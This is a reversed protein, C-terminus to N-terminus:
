PGEGLAKILVPMRRGVARFGFGQYLRQSAENQRQTNLSIVRAGAEAAFDLADALLLRGLGLGQYGPNIGLRAIHAHDGTLRTCAYGALIGQYDLVVLRSSTLLLHVLESHSFQWPWAFALHDLLTLADLEDLGPLRLTVMPNPHEGALPRAPAYREYHIIYDLLAFQQQALPASPWSEIGLHMLHQVQDQRLGRELGQLLQGVGSELGWGNVLTLGRVQALGPQLLAACIVGWLLPGSDAVFCYGQEIMRALDEPGYRVCSRRAFQQLQRIRPIDRATAQRVAVQLDPM